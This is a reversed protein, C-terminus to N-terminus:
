DLRFPSGIPSFESNPITEFEHKLYYPETNSFLLGGNIYIHESEWANTYLVWRKEQYKGFESNQIIQFWDDAYAYDCTWTGNNYYITAKTSEFMHSYEGDEGVKWTGLEEFCFYV